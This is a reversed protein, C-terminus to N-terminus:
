SNHSFLLLWSNLFDFQNPLKFNEGVLNLTHSMCGVDLLAPYAIKLTKLAVKNISAWDRMVATISNLGMGFQTSVVSILEHAIEQGTLCKALLQIKVLRQKITRSDSIFRVVIAFAEYVHTTGDFIIGLSKGRIEDKIRSVEENVIFPVLDYM